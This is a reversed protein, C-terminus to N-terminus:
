GHHPAGFHGGMGGSTRLAGAFGHREEIDSAFREPAGFDGGLGGPTRLAGAVGHREEIHGHAIM